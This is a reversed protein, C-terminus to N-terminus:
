QIADNIITNKKKKKIYTCHNWFMANLNLIIICRYLTPTLRWNYDVDVAANAKKKSYNNIKKDRCFRKERLPGADFAFVGAINKQNQM